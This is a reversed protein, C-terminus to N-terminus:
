KRRGCRAYGDLMLSLEYSTADAKAEDIITLQDDCKM